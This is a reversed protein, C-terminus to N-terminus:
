KQRDLPTRQGASFLAELMDRYALAQKAIIDPEKYTRALIFAGEFIVQFMEAVQRLDAPAPKRTKAASKLKGEIWDAWLRLQAECAKRSEENFLQGEYCYSAMLCGPNEPAEKFMEAALGCLLLVQQLPDRSLSEVRAVAEKFLAHDHEVFRRVLEVALEDKSKFHYFFTGKTLKAKELIEDISTAALGNELALELAADLLLTRTKSGDKPM